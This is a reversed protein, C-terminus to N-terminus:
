LAQLEKLVEELRARTENLREELIVVSEDKKKLLANARILDDELQGRTGFFPADQQVVKQFSGQSSVHRLTRYEQEEGIMQM